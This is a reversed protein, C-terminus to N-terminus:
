QVVAIKIYPPTDKQCHQSGERLEMNICYGECGIYGAMPAYGDDGKDTRSVGEKKTRSNDMSTVNADLPIHGTNSATIKAQTNKRFDVTAKKIFDQFETAYKDLRQRLTAAAPVQDVDMAYSFFKDDRSNEITDFDNKGISLLGLCSLLVDSHSIGHRHPVHTDVEPGLDTHKKLAVGILALGSNLVIEAYSQEIKFRRM